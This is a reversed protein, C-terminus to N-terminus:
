EYQGTAENFTYTYGNQIVTKPKNSPIANAMGNTGNEQPQEIKNYMFIDKLNVGKRNALDEYGKRLNDFSQYQADYVKNAQGIFDQRMTPNMREGSLVRNYMNRIRDPVGTSNQANAFEGERVVSGPDLMKMYNFILSLDGAASPNNASNKVKRYAADVEVMTRRYPQLEKRIDSSTKDIQQRPEQTMLQKKMELGERQLGLQDEKLGMEREQMQQYEPLMMAANRNGGGAAARMMRDSITKMIKQLKSPEEDYGQGLYDAM